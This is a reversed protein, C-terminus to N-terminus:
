KGKPGYEVKTEETEANKPLTLSAKESGLTIEGIQRVHKGHERHVEVVLKYTGQPVNDGKDGVGNWVLQYQGPPRTARTAALILNKDGKAFKWWDTLDAQYRSNNGWVSLTRVPKGKDDEFWVAVYPRRYKKGKGLEPLTLTVTVQYDRPWEALALAPRPAPLPVELEAFGPSRLLRGDETVLLCAVGPLTGVLRLGEEPTLVCLSTALANTTVSDPALVTASAVGEAPRGTRPDFIHSYRKDGVTYFRQYAGSTAVAGDSLRVRTLPPANDTWESPNAIGIQWELPHAGPRGDSWAVMDGGIDLLYGYVEPVRVRAAMAARGLIYGRGIANVNLAQDTLRTVTRKTQDIIWAPKALEELFPALEAADPEVGTKEAEKWASILSGLQGNLAGQTTATWKEYHRLIEILEPACPVPEHTRNLRSIESSPDYTSLILRLREIEDLVNQEFSEAAGVSPATVYLDLSTGLIHDHHFSFRQIGVDNAPATKLRPLSLLGLCFLGFALARAARWRGPANRQTYQM